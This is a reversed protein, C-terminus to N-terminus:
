GKIGSTAIGEVFYKQTATFAAITPLIALCAGALQMAFNAGSRGQWYQLGVTLVQKDIKTIFIFPNIYDNWVWIFTFLIMTLMAPVSLPIIIRWFIGFHSSGDIFAAESMERPIGMFFQRLFFIFWVDFAGPIILVWLSDRIDMYGYIIYRAILTVEGPIMMLSIFFMFLFNKFRFNLKAFAYAAGSVLLTRFIIVTVTVIITNVYWKPFYPDAFVAEYNGYFPKFVLLTKIPDVFVMNQTKLSASVMFIFPLVTTLGLVAALLSFIIKRLLPGM